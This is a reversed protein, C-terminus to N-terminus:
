IEESVSQNNKYTFVEVMTNVRVKEGVLKLGEDMKQNSIVPLAKYHTERYKEIIEVAEPILVIDIKKRSKGYFSDTKQPVFSILTNGKSEEVNSKSLKFLDSHRLGTYCAFLFVDRTRDLSEPLEVERILEIEEFTLFIKVIQLKSVKM